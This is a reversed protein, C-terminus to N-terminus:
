IAINQVVALDGGEVEAAKGEVEVAKGEVEGCVMVVMMLLLVVSTLFCVSHATLVEVNRASTSHHKSRAVLCWEKLDFSPM